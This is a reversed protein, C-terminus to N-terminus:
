APRIKPPLDPLDPLTTYLVFAPAPRFRRSLRPDVDLAVVLFLLGTGACLSGGFEDHDAGHVLCLLGLALVVLAVTRVLAAGERGHVAHRM